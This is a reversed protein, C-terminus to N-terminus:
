RLVLVEAIERRGDKREVQIVLDLVSRAYGIIEGRKLGLNARMAMLALRDFAAAPTNAHITTLSGPHGTNIAELFSWAETGRLEGLLIRDPRMRLSAELLAPATNPGSGSSRLQVTNPQRPHLEFGDEITIIREDRDAEALLARLLTTKGSSTGGSVLINWRANIAMRFAAAAEGANILAEFEATDTPEQGIGVSRTQAFAGSTALDDLTLDHLVNRRLSVAYGREVVPPAAIQVRWNEGKHVIHGSVIPTRDSLAQGGALQRALLRLAPEELVQDVADMHADGSRELWVRGCPNVAIEITDSAAMLAGIPAIAQELYGGIPESRIAAASM